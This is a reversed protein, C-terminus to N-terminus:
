EGPEGDGASLLRAGDLVRNREAEAHVPAAREALTRGHWARSEAAAAADAERARQKRVRRLNIIETVREKARCEDPAYGLHRVPKRRRRWVAAM